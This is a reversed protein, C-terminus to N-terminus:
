QRDEAWEEESTPDYYGSPNSVDVSIRSIAELYKRIVIKEDFENEMKRRGALGMELRREPPLNVMKIMKEALDKADRVKCLFGTINNDVADRCGIVDTAITPRAMAAAELLSRPVGERYSPLIVCDTEALFPRVNDTSGLYSVLGEKEWLSIQERSVANSNESDVFGLLRCEVNSFKQRLIRMAYVLEELGKDRLMRGVFLFRFCRDSSFERPAEIQYSELDIGSGPLVSSNKRTAINSGVFLTRDDNNQFFVFHSRRLAMRYLSQVLVTLYSSNIFTSGLGAINNIVPIGLAQAALSGYVNPKVTYGLYVSPRLSRLREWYRLLLIFDKVVNTGNSDVPLDIHGCGLGQLRSSYDDRPALAYVEHGHDILARILGARFNFINWSSNISIVIKHKM